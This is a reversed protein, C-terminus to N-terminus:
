QVQGSFMATASATKTFPTTASSACVTLGTSGRLPITFNWSDGGLTGNSIVPMSWIPTVAGDGPASTANFVQIIVTTAQITVGLSYLNGASAKLVHCSELTTSVVPILANNASATPTAVTYSGTADGVSPRTNTGDWTYPLVGLPATTTANTSRSLSLNVTTGSSSPAANNGVILTRLNGDVDCQMDGRNGATLAALASATSYICGVKIPNGSDVANNAVNGTAVVGNTTGPTTQDIRVNGIIASGAVLPSNNNYKSLAILSCTGTATGCAADAQAGIATTANTQQTAVTALNGGTELAANTPLPLSAASVPQTAQWFTGTVAISPATGINVTPTAAFAPLTGTLGVNWTGSQKAITRLDGTLNTSLANNTSGEIQTPAAATATTSTTGGAGGGTIPCSGLGDDCAKISVQVPYGRNIAETGQVQQAGSPLVQASTASAALAAVIGILSIGHLTSKRNQTM